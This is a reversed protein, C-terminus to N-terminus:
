FLMEHALHDSYKNVYYSHFSDLTYGHHFHRPLFRDRDFIPLLLTGRFFSDLHIVSVDRKGGTVDPKVRWLGTDPDPRNGIRSFWEVLACPYEVGDFLFSFFLKVRVVRLGRMGPQSEDEVVLATDYRPVKRRWSPSARIRERRMGHIGSEDSPAYFTAVASRFVSIKSSISPYELDSPESQPNLHEFLFQETLDRLNPYNISDGLTDLDQPVNRASIATLLRKSHFVIDSM